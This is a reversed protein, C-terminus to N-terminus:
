GKLDGHAVGTARRVLQNVLALLEELDFPKPLVLEAVQLATQPPLQNLHASLVVVPAHRGPMRHYASLFAAGDMQPMLMDLLILVPREYQLVKLADLGNSASAVSYGEEALIFSLMERVSDDDDVVLILESGNLNDM